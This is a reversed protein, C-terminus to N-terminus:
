SKSKLSVFYDKLESESIKTDSNKDIDKFHQVLLENKSAAVEVKNLVGNKDSDYQTLLSSIDKIAVATNDTNIVKSVEAKVSSVEIAPVDLNDVKGEASVFYSALVCTSVIVTVKTLSIHNMEIGENM